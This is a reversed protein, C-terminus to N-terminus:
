IKKALLITQLDNLKQRRELVFESKKLLSKYQEFTREYSKCMVRMNLSLMNAKIEDNLIEIIFIKGSENLAFRCNKLILKAKEDDWDHLVRSLIIADTRFPLEKFFNGKIYQIKEQQKDNILDIVEPLDFLICNLQPLKQAINNIVTGLGGGVDSVTNFGSFDVIKAINRYDDNAYEAMAYHYNKLKQKDTKLYDFFRIGYINEFSPKGTKVTYQLDQWVTLHEGGWLICANKMSDPNTATLLEGKETLSLVGRNEIITKTEILSLILSELVSFDTESVKYLQDLSNNGKQIEDFINLQCATRLTLYEWFSTFTSKLENKLQM